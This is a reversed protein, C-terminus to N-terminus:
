TKPPTGVDHTTRAENKEQLRPLVVCLLSVFVTSFQARNLPTSYMPWTCGGGGDLEPLKEKGWTSVGDRNGTMGM